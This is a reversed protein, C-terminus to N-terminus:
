QGYQLHAHLVVMGQALALICCGGALIASLFALIKISGRAHRYAILRHTFAATFLALLPFLFIVVGGLKDALPTVKGGSRLPLTFIFILNTMALILSTLCVLYIKGLGPSIGDVRNDGSVNPLEKIENMDSEGIQKFNCLAYHAYHCLPSPMIAYHPCDGIERIWRLM